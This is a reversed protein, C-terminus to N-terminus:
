ELPAFYGTRDRGSRELLYVEAEIPLYDNGFNTPLSSRYRLAYSGSGKEAISRIVPGTGLPRYLDVAEGGTEECLYRIEGSVRGNGVIIAYFAIGNNALYSALESLSYSEFGFEGPSGSGVFVVARKKEGPLLDTAALRLGQDFRWYPSYTGGRAAAALGSAGQGVRERVPTQGASVVSVIRPARRGDGSGAANIDRLAAALDDRLVATDPSREFLVSVDYNESLYAAGLFTQGAVARNNESLVFNRENLGVIPRRNRDQVSLEVTVEPFTDAIVRDIQVFFGSAMDDVETMVTVEDGQFNAALINGNRDLGASIIRVAAGGILGLETVVSSNPDVLLVRNTDAVLLM